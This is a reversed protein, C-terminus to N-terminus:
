SNSWLKGGTTAPIIIGAKTITANKVIGYIFIFILDLGNHDVFLFFFSSIKLETTKTPVPKHENNLTKEIMKGENNNYPM